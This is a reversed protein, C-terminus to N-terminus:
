IIHSLGESLTVERTSGNCIIILTQPIDSRLTLETVKHGSWRCSVEIGGRAKLGSFSGESWGSPLAPLVNIVTAGTERDTEHSQLLMEMIGASGGFNGDIQMPPHSSFLNPFTGWRHQRLAEDDAAPGADVAPKLLNRLLRFARDGDGLRAWFNVKWAMSWGTSEDGRRELTVKAAEMLEPTEAWTFQNGPYLGYLQSIHRHHPEAEPYDENWEMVQGYQGISTPALREMQGALRETLADDTKGLIGAADTVATFLERVIQNDMASGACIALVNGERDIYRNEPSTTPATVLYGSRPDEVLMESFFEAAGRMVPYYEELFDRDRTYLYHEWIHRCLWAGATNTAGWSPDESPSTWGWVNGLIHTVWGNCGYYTRATHEGNRVLSRVYELMPLHLESLNGTEAPWLNMQLNINLHYDGNWPTGTGEAWLGQLNPPLNGPRTSSILLYRGYQMYTAILDLDTPDEAFAELRRSASLGSNANRPLELSVRGFLGGFAESHRRRLTRYDYGFAESLDETCQSLPTGSDRYDTHMATIIEAEDAGTVVITSDTYRIRGGKTRIAAAGAFKMGGAEDTGDSLAGRIFLATQGEAAGQLGTRGTEIFTDRRFSLTFGVAGKRDSSYRAVAVDETMSTFYEREYRTDGIRFVTTSIGEAMRLDRRYGDMEGPVKGFDVIMNAFVQYNGYQGGSSGPGLCTFTEYMLEQAERNRGEFLLERIRGLHKGAEPNDAEQPAGSWMTIENLTIRDCDTGGWPMMGIRGNGLPVTEEWIRAPHGFWYGCEEQPSSCASSFFMASLATLVIKLGKM